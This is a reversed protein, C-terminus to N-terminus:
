AIRSLSCKHLILLLQQIGFHLVHMEVLVNALLHQGVLLMTRPLM